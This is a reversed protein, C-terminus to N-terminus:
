SCSQLVASKSGLFFIGSVQGPMRRVAPQKPGEIEFTYFPRTRRASSSQLRVPVGFDSSAQKQLFMADGESLVRDPDVSWFTERELSGVKRLVEDLLTGSM